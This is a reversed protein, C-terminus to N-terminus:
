MFKQTFVFHESVIPRYIVVRVRKGMARWKNRKDAKQEQLVIAPQKRLTQTCFYGRTQQRDVEEESGGLPKRMNFIRKKSKNDVVLSLFLPFGKTGLTFLMALGNHQSTRLEFYNKLCMLFKEYECGYQLYFGINFSYNLNIKLLDICFNSIKEQNSYCKM